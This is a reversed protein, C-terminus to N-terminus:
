YREVQKSSLETKSVGMLWSKFISEDETNKRIAKTGKNFEVSWCLVGKTM